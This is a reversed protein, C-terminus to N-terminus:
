DRRGGRRLEERREIAIQERITKKRFTFPPFAISWVILVGVATVLCMIFLPDTLM